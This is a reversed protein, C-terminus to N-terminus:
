PLKDKNYKTVQSGLWIGLRKEEQDKAKDQPRKGKDQLFDIVKDYTDYWVQEPDEFASPYAKFMEEYKDKRDQPM